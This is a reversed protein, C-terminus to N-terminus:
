KNVGSSKKLFMWFFFTLLIHIRSLHLKLNVKKKSEYFAIINPLVTKLLKIIIWTDFSLNYNKSHEKNNFLGGVVSSFCKLNFPYNHIRIKFFTGCKKVWSFKIHYKRKFSKVYFVIIGRKRNLNFNNNNNVVFAHVEIKM